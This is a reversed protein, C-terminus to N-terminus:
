YHILPFPRPPIAMKPVSATPILTLSSPFCWKGGLSLACKRISIWEVCTWLQNKPVPELEIDFWTTMQHHCLYPFTTWCLFTSCYCHIHLCRIMNHSQNSEADDDSSHHFSFTARFATMRYCSATISLHFPQKNTDPTNSLMYLNFHPPWNTTSKSLYVLQQVQVNLTRIRYLM